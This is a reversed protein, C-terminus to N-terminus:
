MKLKNPQQEVHHFCTARPNTPRVPMTPLYKLDPISCLLASITYVQLNNKSWFIVTAYLTTNHRLFFSRWEHQCRYNAGEQMVVNSFCSNTYEKLNNILFTFWNM